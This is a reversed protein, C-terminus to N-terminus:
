SRSRRPTRARACCEVRLIKAEPFCFLGESSAYHRAHLLALTENQTGQARRLDPSIFLCVTDHFMDHTFMDHHRMSM